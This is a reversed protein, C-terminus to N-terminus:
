NIEIQLQVFIVANGVNHIVPFSSLLLPFKVLCYIPTLITWSIWMYPNIRWGLMMKINDYFRGIGSVFYFILIQISEWFRIM